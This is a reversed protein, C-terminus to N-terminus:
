ETTINFTINFNVQGGNCVVIMKTKVVEDPTANDPHNGGYLFLDTNDHGISCWIVGDAWGCANGGADMWYGPVDATYSPDDNTIENLYVKLDGSGIAKHIQYTTMKFANRLVDKVDVSVSAYDDSWPKTLEIDKDITEPDVEPPTEPDEYAVVKVTIEFMEIKNNALFGYKFVVTQGAQLVDPMQGIGIYEEGFDNDDPGYTTYVVSNDGWPVVFGNVDFWFGSGTTTEETYSGDANIGVFKIGEMSSIGLDSLTQALNFKLSDQDYSSSPTMTINLKQTNVVSATIQGPAKANVTVIVAVRKENYKLCEIFKVIQGDALHGPYQGVNFIGADTDFEAFVMADAGWVTVDGDKNWWHGWPANTNTASGIDAHTTGNIAFGKVEPAGSVGAIGDLLQQKTIGFLGAIKDLDVTVPAGDYVTKSITIDISYELKLDANISNKQAERISDQRAIEDIEDQTLEHKGWFDTNDGCSAIGIILFALCATYFYIKKMKM